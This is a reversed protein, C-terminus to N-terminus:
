HAKEITFKALERLISAMAENAAVVGAYPTLDRLPQQVSLEKTAIVQAAVERSLHFRMTLRLIAPNSSFDQNFELIETRLAYTHSGFYPSAFIESFYHTKQLTEVILPQIMQSPTEAWENHSFYAIQYAQRTYAMQTTAYTPDTEPALVLLTASHTLEVPLDIPIKNLVYKKTDNNVPSILACGSCLIVCLTVFIARSTFENM